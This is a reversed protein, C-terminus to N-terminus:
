LQNYYGMLDEEAYNHKPPFYIGCVLFHHGMPLRLKHLHNLTLNFSLCKVVTLNNRIYRAVGGKNRM